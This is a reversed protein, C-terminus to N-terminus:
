SNMRYFWYNYAFQKYLLFSFLALIVYTIFCTILVYRKTINNSQLTLLLPIVVTFGLCIKLVNKLSIYHHGNLMMIEQFSSIIGIYIADHFYTFTYFYKLFKLCRCILVYSRLPLDSTLYNILYQRWLRQLNDVAVAKAFM